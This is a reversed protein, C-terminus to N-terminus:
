LLGSTSFNCRFYVRNREFGLGASFVKRPGFQRRIGVELAGRERDRSVLDAVL